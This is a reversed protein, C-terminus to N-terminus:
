ASASERFTEHAFLLYHFLSLNVIDSSTISLCLSSLCLLFPSIFPSFCCCAFPFARQSVVRPKGFAFCLWRFPYCSLQSFFICYILKNMHFFSDFKLRLHYCGIIWHDMTRWRNSTSSMPVTTSDSLLSSDFELTLFQLSHLMRERDSCVPLIM